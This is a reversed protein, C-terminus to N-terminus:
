EVSKDETFCAEELFFRSKQCIRARVSVNLHVSRRGLSLHGRTPLTLVPVSPEDRHGVSTVGPVSVVTGCAGAAGSAKWPFSTLPLFAEGGM